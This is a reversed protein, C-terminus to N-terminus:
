SQYQFKSRNNVPQLLMNWLRVPLCRLHNSLIKSQLKKLNYIFRVSCRQFVLKVIFFILLNSNINPNNSNWFSFPIFSRLNGIVVCRNFSNFICLVCKRRSLMLYLNAGELNILNECKFFINTMDVVNKIDFSSLDVNNLNTCFSFMYSM